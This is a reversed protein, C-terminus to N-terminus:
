ARRKLGLLALLGFGGVAALQTGPEPTSTSTPVDVFTNFFFDVNQQGNGNPYWTGPGDVGLPPNGFTWVGGRSYGSSNSGSLGGFPGGYVVFSLLEGSTVALNLAIPTAAGGAAFGAFSVTELVVSNPHSAVQGRIDVFFAGAGSGFIDLEVLTGTLGVQFTQAQLLTSNFSGSNSLTAPLSTQDLIPGALTSGPLAIALLVVGALAGSYRKNKL